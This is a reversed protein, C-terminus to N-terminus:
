DVGNVLGHGTFLRKLPDLLREEGVKERVIVIVHNLAAGCCHLRDKLVREWLDDGLTLGLFAIL